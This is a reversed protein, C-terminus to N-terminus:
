PANAKLSELPFKKGQVLSIQITLEINLIEELEVSASFVHFCCQM